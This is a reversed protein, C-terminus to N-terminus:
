VTQLRSLGKKGVDIKGRLLRDLFVLTMKGFDARDKVCTGTQHRNKRSAKSQQTFARKKTSHYFSRSITFAGTRVNALAAVLVAFTSDRLRM